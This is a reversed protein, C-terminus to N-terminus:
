RKETYQRQLNISTQFYSGIMKLFHSKSVGHIRKGYFVPVCKIKLKNRMALYVLRLHYEGYGYYIDEVPLSILKSSKIAYYGSTNDTIPYHFLIKLLSNFLYSSYYRFTDSMGGKAIFRSAVILDASNIGRILLPIVSPDHNGDGDMGIIIKGKSNHIGKLISRGLDRKGSHHLLKVHPHTTTYESVVKGTGDESRDDVVIIEYEYDHLYNELLPLLLAINEAENYTPIVISLDPYKM